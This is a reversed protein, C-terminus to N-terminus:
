KRGPKRPPPSGSSKGRSGGYGHAEGFTVYVAWQGTNRGDLHTTGTWYFPFDTSGGEDKIATASFIPDIAASGTTDPSRTYDVLSQLEKANPLRWDSRGGHSLDECFRLAEEWKMSGDKRDFASLRGIFGPDGSDKEMWNLGTARDQVVGRGADTFDNKGYAPNGRVFRAYFKSRSMNGKKPYGKIRGDAFNVGFFVDQGGFVKAVSSTATVYQADIYRGKTPYEFNFLKTDIYPVADRPAASSGPSATGTAGDFNILSYLEKITPVRWDTYGGTGAARAAAAADAWSVKSFSKQWMLGTASDSVTGDGNDKYVPQAGKYQADQGYYRAGPKPCRWLKGRSGDDYCRSQGTDVIPYGAASMGAEGIGGSVCRVYNYIRVVDGQPGHGSAYDLPDGSKPDSRQAGAGHVDMVSQSGGSRYPMGSDGSPAGIQPRQGMPQGQGRGSPPGKPAEDRSIAGDNNRDLTKFHHRPGDFEDRSVKGDKNKDLRDIFSVGPPHPPPGPNFTPQQAMVTASIILGAFIILWRKM